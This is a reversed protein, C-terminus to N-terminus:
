IVSKEYKTTRFEGDDTDVVVGMSNSKETFYTHSENTPISLCLHFSPRTIAPGNKVKKLLFGKYLFSKEKSIEM